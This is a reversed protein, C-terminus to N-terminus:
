QGFLKLSHGVSPKDGIGGVMELGVPSAGRRRRGGCRSGPGTAAVADPLGPLLSPHVVTSHSVASSFHRSPHLGTPLEFSGGYVFVHTKKLGSPKRRSPNTDMKKHSRLLDSSIVHISDHQASPLGRATKSPGPM